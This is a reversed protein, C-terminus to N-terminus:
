NSIKITAEAFDLPLIFDASASKPPYIMFAPTIERRQKKIDIEEGASYVDATEKLLHFFGAGSIIMEIRRAFCFLASLMQGAIPNNIRM